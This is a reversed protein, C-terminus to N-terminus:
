RALAFCHDLLADFVDIADFPQHSALPDGAEFGHTCVRSLSQFFQAGPVPSGNGLPHLCLDSAFEVPKFQQAPLDCVYLGFAIRQQVGLFAGVPEGPARSRLSRPM